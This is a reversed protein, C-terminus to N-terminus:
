TVLRAQCTPNTLDMKETGGTDGDGTSCTGALAEIEKECLVQPKMYEKKM